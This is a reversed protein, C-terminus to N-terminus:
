PIGGTSICVIFNHKNFSAFALGLTSLKSFSTSFVTNLGVFRYTCIVKKTNHIYHSKINVKKM